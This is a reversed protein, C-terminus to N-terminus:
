QILRNAFFGNEILTDTYFETISLVSEEPQVSSVEARAIAEGISKDKKVSFIDFIQGVVIGDQSGKNIKVLSLRDNTKIIKAELSYNIFGRNAHGFQDPSLAVAPTKPNHGFQSQIGGALMFGNPAAQGWISQTASIYLDFTPIVRYGIKGQIQLLSSNTGGVIFSGGAGASSRITNVSAAHPDNHASAIGFSSLHFFLGEDKPEARLVLSWPIAGSFSSTRYTYGAGLTASYMSELTEYFSLTTFLGLSIDLTADGLDPTSNSTSLANNYAPLDCQLQIDLSSPILSFKHFTSRHGPISRPSRFVRLDMGISQDAFGYGLGPRINSKISTVEFSSRAFISFHEFLGYDLTVDGQARNYYVFGSPVNVSGSADFNSPSYYYNGDIKLRLLSPLQYHNEWSHIVFDAQSPISFIFIWALFLHWYISSKAQNATKRQRVPRIQSFPENQQPM